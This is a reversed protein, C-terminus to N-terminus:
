RRKGFLRLLYIFINIFDLYLILAGMVAAKDYAEEGFATDAASRIKQTDWATLGLFLLVGFISICMDILQSRMFINVVIAIIIGFLGMRLFGGFSTLDRGTRLGYISMACFMGATSLFAGYVSSQAYVLLIVSLSVGNMLSYVFFMTNAAVASLRDISSSLWLVLLLELGMLVFAPWGLVLSLLTRSSATIYAAAATLALGGAMRRYVKAFLESVADSDREYAYSPSAYSDFSM